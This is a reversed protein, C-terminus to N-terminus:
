QKIIRRNYTEEATKVQVTYIGDPLSSLSIQTKGDVLNPHDERLLIRGVADIVIISISPNSSDIDLTVLDSVPNPYVSFPASRFSSQTNEIGSHQTTDVWQAYLTTNTRFHAIDGPQYLTEVGSIRHLWGTFICNEKNFTCEPIVVESAPCFYEVKTEENAGNPNLHLRKRPTIKLHYRFVTDLHHVLTDFTGANFTYERFQRTQSDNCVSDFYDVTDFTEVMGPQIGFIAGQDLNFTYTSNGGAGGTRPSLDDVTYFGNGTGGWGWNFHYRGELDAGDLVFAHGGTSDYGCYLIPRLHAMETDILATWTSDPIGNRSLSVLDPSYKFYNVFANHACPISSSYALVFAGSSAGYGMEVAVGCHFSLTAVANIEYPFAYQDVFNPMSNWQYTTAGFDASIDGYLYHHYTNSGQGYTPYNWYKMIMAMATAVCGVVTRFHGSNDYPCLNNYPSGQDWQTTLLAPIDAITLPTPPITANLLTNWRDAVSATAQHNNKVAWSLQEEYGNLWYRLEANLSVPFPDDFSYALVPQVCDDAAVIVFGTGNVTIIHLHPLEVFPLEVLTAASKAEAPRHTDWFHAAVLSATQSDVPKASAFNFNSFLFSFILISTLSHSPTFPLSSSHFSLHKKM